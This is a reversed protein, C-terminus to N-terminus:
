SSLLHSVAATKMMATMVTASTMADCMCHDADVAAQVDSSTDLVRQM